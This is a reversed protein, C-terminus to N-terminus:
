CSSDNFNKMLAGWNHCRGLYHGEEGCQGSLVYTVPSVSKSPGPVQAILLSQARYSVVLLAQSEQEATAPHGAPSWCCSPWRCSFYDQVPPCGPLSLPTAWALVKRGSSPLSLSPSLEHWTCEANPLL